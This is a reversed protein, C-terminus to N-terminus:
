RTSRPPISTRFSRARPSSEPTTSSVDRVDAVIPKAGSTRALAELAAGNRGVAHVEFGLQRLAVVIAEGIGGAAGTVVAMRPSSADSM